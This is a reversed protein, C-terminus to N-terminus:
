FGIFTRGYVHDYYESAGIKNHRTENTAV